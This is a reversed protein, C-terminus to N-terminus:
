EESTSFGKKYVVCCMTGINQQEGSCFDSTVDRSVIRQALERLLAQWPGWPRWHLGMISLECTWVTQTSVLPEAM